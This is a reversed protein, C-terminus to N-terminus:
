AMIRRHMSTNKQDKAKARANWNMEDDNKSICNTYFTKNL